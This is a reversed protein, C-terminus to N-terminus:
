DKMRNLNIENLIRRNIAQLYLSVSTHWSTPNMESIYALDLFIHHM